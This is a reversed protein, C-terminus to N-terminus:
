SEIVKKIVRCLYSFNRFYGFIKAVKKMSKKFRIMPVPGKVWAQTLHRDGRHQLGFLQNM